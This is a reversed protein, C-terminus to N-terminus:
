VNPPRVGPQDWIVDYKPGRHRLATVRRFISRILAKDSASLREREFCRRYFAIVDATTAGSLQATYALAALDKVLWRRRFLTPRFVRQLDILYLERYKVTGVPEVIFVHSLYYDRHAFGEQLFRRTLDAIELTLQRRATAGLTRTYDHAAVGGRIEATILFSRVVCGAKRQQGVAIPWATNFGLERLSWIAQWEQMAEDQASPWRLRRLWLDAFSLYDREYRKLFVTQIGNVPTPLDIRCTSRGPVSRMVKGGTLAMLSEADLWGNARLVQESGTSLHLTWSGQEVVTKTTAKASM